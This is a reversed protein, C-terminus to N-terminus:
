ESRADSVLVVLKFSVSGCIIVMQESRIVYRLLKDDTQVLCYVDYFM